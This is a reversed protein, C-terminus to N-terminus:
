PIHDSVISVNLIGNIMICAATLTSMSLTAAVVTIHHTFSLSSYLLVLDNDDFEKFWWPPMM